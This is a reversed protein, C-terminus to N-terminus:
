FREAMAKLNGAENYTDFSYYELRIWGDAARIDLKVGFEVPKGVTGHVIPRVFPQSVSATPVPSGAM